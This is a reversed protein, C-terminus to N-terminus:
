GVDREREAERSWSRWQEGGEGPALEEALEVLADLPLKFEKALSRLTAWDADLEGREIKELDSERAGIKEALDACSIGARERLMVIAVGMGQFSADDETTRPRPSLSLGAGPRPGGPLRGPDEM